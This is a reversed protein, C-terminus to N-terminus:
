RQQSHRKGNEGTSDIVILSNGEITIQYRDQPGTYMVIDFGAGGDIFDDGQGNFNETPVYRKNGFTNKISRM